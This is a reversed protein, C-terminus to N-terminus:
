WELHADDALQLRLMRPLQSNVIRATENVGLGSRRKVREFQIAIPCDVLLTTHIRKRYALSDFLLPVILVAYSARRVSDSALATEVDERILPHLIAELVRKVSGDAFVRARTQARDLSGDAAIFQEGMETRIADIARGDSATLLHAIADTDVLAAGLTKFVEAVTSKGSGIGGTLGVIYADPLM